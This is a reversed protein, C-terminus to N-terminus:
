QTARSVVWEWRERAIKIQAPVDGELLFRRAVLEEAVSRIRALYTELDAYRENVSARPDGSALRSVRDVSFPIWAGRLPYFEHPEGFEGPRFVWGLGTGLPVALEPM